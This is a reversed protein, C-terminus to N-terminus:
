NIIKNIIEKITLTDDDLIVMQINFKDLLDKARPGFDGSIAKGVGIEVMQEAVKSGAGHSADAYDNRIFDSDGNEENFICFWAARGFRLDFGSNLTKGTSTIVTKM